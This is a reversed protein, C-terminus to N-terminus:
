QQNLMEKLKAIELQQNSVIEKLKMIESFMFQMPESVPAFSSIPPLTNNVPIPTTMMADGHSVVTTQDTEIKVKKDSDNDEDDRKRKQSEVSSSTSTVVTGPEIYLKRKTDKDLQLRSRSRIWFFSSVAICEDDQNYIEIYGIRSSSSGKLTTIKQPITVTCEFTTLNNMNNPKFAESSVIVGDASGDKLKLKCTCRNFAQSSIHLSDRITLNHSTDPPAKKSDNLLFGEKCVFSHSPIEGKWYNSFSLIPISSTNKSPTSRKPKQEEGVASNKRTTTINSINQFTQIPKIESPCMEDGSSSSSSSDSLNSQKARILENTKMLKKQHISTLPMTKISNDMTSISQIAAPATNNTIPQKVIQFPQSFPNTYAQAGVSNLVSEPKFPSSTISTNTPNNTPNMLFFTPPLPKESLHPMFSHTM